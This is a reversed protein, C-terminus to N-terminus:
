TWYGSLGPGSADMYCYEREGNGKDTEKIQKV